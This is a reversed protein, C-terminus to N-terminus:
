GYASVKAGDVFEKGGSKAHRYVAEFKFKKNDPDALGVLRYDSAKACHVDYCKGSIHRLGGAGVGTKKIEAITRALSPESHSSCWSTVKSNVEVTWPKTKEAKIENYAKKAADIAKPLNAKLNTYKSDALPLKGIQAQLYAIQQEINGYNKLTAELTKLTDSGAGEKRTTELGKELSAHLQKLANVHDSTLTDKGDPM